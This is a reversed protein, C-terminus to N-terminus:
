DNVIIPKSKKLDDMTAVAETLIDINSSLGFCQEWQDNRLFYESHSKRREDDVDLLDLAYILESGEHGDPPDLITKDMDIVPDVGVVEVFAEEMAKLLVKERGHRIIFSDHIPLVPEPSKQGYLKLLVKEVIESDLRQTEGWVGSFFKEEIPAHFELLEAILDSYERGTLKLFAERRLNAKQFRTYEHWEDPLPDPDLHPEFRHWQNSNRSSQDSNLLQSFAKKTIPRLAEDWGPLIYSDVPVSQGANAYLIRPQITSYDLEVTIWGNIEIFKRLRSPVSQWWGGYFRGGVQFSSNSFVRRLKRNTFDIKNSRLSDDEDNEASAERSTNLNLLQEDSVNLNILTKQLVENVLQLNSTAEHLPFGDPDPWATPRKNDDKVVIIDTGADELVHTWNLGNEDFVKIFDTTAQMRSSFHGFGADAVHNIILGMEELLDIADLFFTVSLAPLDSAHNWYAGGSIFNAKGRSYGIWIPPKTLAASLLDVCLCLVTEFCTIKDNESFNRKRKAELESVLQHTLQLAKENQTTLGLRNRRSNRQHDEVHAQLPM